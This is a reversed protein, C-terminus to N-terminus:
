EPSLRFGPQTATLSVPEAYRKGARLFVPHIGAEAPIVSFHVSKESQNRSQRALGRRHIREEWYRLKVPFFGTLLTPPNAKFLFAFVIARQL